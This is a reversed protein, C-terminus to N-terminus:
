KRRSLVYKGIICFYVRRPALLLLRLRLASALRTRLCGVVELLPGSCAALLLRLPCHPGGGAHQGRVGHRSLGLRGLYASETNLLHPNYLDLNSYLFM